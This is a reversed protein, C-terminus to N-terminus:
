NGVGILKALVPSLIGLVYGAALWILKASLTKQEILNYRFDALQRGLRTKRAYEAYDLAPQQICIELHGRRNGALAVFGKEQLGIYFSDEGPIGTIPSDKEGDIAELFPWPFLQVGTSLLCWGSVGKSKHVEAMKRIVRKETETLNDYKGM